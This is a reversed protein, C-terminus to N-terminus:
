IHILSLYIVADYFTYVHDVNPMSQHYTLLIPIVSLLDVMSYFNTLYVLKHDELLFSLTWDFGFIIAFVLQITRDDTSLTLHEDNLKYTQYICEICSLVSCVLLVNEYLKGFWSLTLFKKVRNKYRSFKLLLDDEITTNSNNLEFIVSNIEKVQLDSGDISILSNKRNNLKASRM